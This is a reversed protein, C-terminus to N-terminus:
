ETIEHDVAEHGTDANTIALNLRKKKQQQKLLRSEFFHHPHSQRKKKKKKVTLIYSLVTFTLFYVFLNEWILLHILKNKTIISTSVLGYGYKIDISLRTKLEQRESSREIGTPPPLPRLVSNTFVLLPFLEEFSISTVNIPDFTMRRAERAEGPM